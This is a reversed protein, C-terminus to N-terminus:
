LEDCLRWFDQCAKAAVHGWYESERRWYREARLNQVRVFEMFVEEDCDFANLIRDLKSDFRVLPCSMMDEMPCFMPVEPCNIPTYPHLCIMDGEESPGYHPCKFGLECPFPITTM